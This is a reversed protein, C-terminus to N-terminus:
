TSNAGLPGIRAVRGGADLYGLLAKAQGETLYGCHPVVVTEYGAITEDIVDDARLRGDPFFVVDFPQIEVALLDCISWFPLSSEATLNLTNDALAPDRAELM